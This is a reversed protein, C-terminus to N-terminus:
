QAYLETSIQLLVDLAVSTSVKTLQQHRHTVGLTIFADSDVSGLRLFISPFNM